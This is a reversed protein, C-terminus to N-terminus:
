KGIHFRRKLHENKHDLPPEPDRIKEEIERHVHVIAYVYAHTRISISVCLIQVCVYVHADYNCRYMCKYHKHICKLFNFKTVM